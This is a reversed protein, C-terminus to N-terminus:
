ASIWLAILSHDRNNFTEAHRAGGYSFPKGFTMERRQEVTANDEQQKNVRMFIKSSKEHYLLLFAAPCTGPGHATFPAHNEVQWM